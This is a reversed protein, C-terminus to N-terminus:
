EVRFRQVRELEFRWNRSFAPKLEKVSGKFGSRTRLGKVNIVRSRQVLAESLKQGVPQM